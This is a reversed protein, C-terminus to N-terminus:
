ANIRDSDANIFVKKTSFKTETIGLHNELESQSKQINETLNKQM